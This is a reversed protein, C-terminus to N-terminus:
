LGLIAFLNKKYAEVGPQGFPNVGSILSSIACSRMFFYALAGFSSASLKPLNLELVPVGGDIHAKMVAIAASNNVKHMDFGVIPNIKDIHMEGGPIIPNVRPESFSVFTEMLNREGEQILQGLSHLDASYDAYAPFIGKSEKGESEGFLQKWWEGTYKFAPEFCALMEINRGKRYLTQRAAAYLSAEDIGNEFEEKAGAMIEDIDIGAVACPLLGVVTLVSYRGGVEPPMELYAHNNEQAMKILPSGIDSTIYLRDRLGVPGYKNKLLEKFFRLAIATEITSGSKSVVNVSFNRDGILRIIEDLYEGSLNNGAFMIDPTKKRLLNYNPSKIFEIAARAGLYSGGIGLVVLVESEDSIKKAINKIKDSLDKNYASPVSMWGNEYLTELKELPEKTNIKRVEEESVFGLAGNIDVKIL